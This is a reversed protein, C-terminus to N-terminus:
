ALGFGFVELGDIPVTPPLLGNPEAHRPRGSKFPTGTVESGGCRMRVLVVVPQAVVNVEHEAPGSLVVSEHECGDDRVWKWAVWKSAVVCRYM